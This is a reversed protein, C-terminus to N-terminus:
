WEVWQGDMYVYIKSDKLYFANNIPTMGDEWVIPNDASTGKPNEQEVYVQKVIQGNIITENWDYGLKDSQVTKHEIGGLETVEKSVERDAKIKGLLTNFDERTM